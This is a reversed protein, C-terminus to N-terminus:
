PYFPTNTATAAARMTTVEATSGGRGTTMAASCCDGSARGSDGGSGSGGAANQQNKGAEVTETTTQWRWLWQRRRQWRQGQKLCQRRWQRGEDGEGNGKSGKWKGEKDGVLSTETAMAWMMAMAQEGGEDGDSKSGDGGGEKNCSVKTAVRNQGGNSDGDATVVAVVSVFTEVAMVTLAAVAAEIKVLM